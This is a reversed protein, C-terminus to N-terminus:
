AENMLFIATLQLHCGLNVRVNANLRSLSGTLSEEISLPKLSSAGTAKLKTDISFGLQSAHSEGLLQESTGQASFPYIAATDIAEIGGERLTELLSNVKELSDFLPEGVSAGGFLIHPRTM